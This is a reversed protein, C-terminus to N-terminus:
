ATRGEFLNEIYDAAQKGYQEEKVTYEMGDKDLRRQDFDKQKAKLEWGFALGPEGTVVFYDPRRESVYCDGQGYRQLFVQYQNTTITEAFVPDLFVYCLGSEDIVGEGVDGFLPSPTEYCYLLRKGYEDADSLRSKTGLVTLDQCYIDDCAIPYYFACIDNPVISIAFLTNGDGNRLAFGADIDFYTTSVWKDTGGINMIYASCFLQTGVEKDTKFRLRDGKLIVQALYPYVVGSYTTQKQTYSVLGNEDITGITANSSDLITIVGSEANVGGIELTGGKIRDALMTGSTIFDAVFAGDITWATEYPGLYGNDSFGIGNLNMRIVHVATEISDTDMILIEEPEGDANLNFVVHGGFGGTILRTAHEIAAQMVTKTPLKAVLSEVGSTIVEALTTQLKGIEMSDFAEDLVNYVVKIIKANEAVVGLEPYYVSVTDCLALQQLAAVDEYEPTQWLEVFDVTVNESPLWPKNNTLYDQAAQRLQAETPVEEFQQTFDMAVPLLNEYQFYIIEGNNDTIMNGNQDTWPALKLPVDDSAVFIEPLYIVTGDDMVYYPAIASYVSSDDIDHTINTMNKGYRITVGSDTGRNQYLYVDFKDWKYEGGGYVDLISGETGGLINRIANPVTLEFRAATVKDTTFNFLNTNVSNAIIKTFAEVINDATFPKVLIRNLRYSIHHAYFTVIGDIPATHRYIDFPQIDKNDDHIVAVCGGNEIMYQYFRGTIPYTFQCEFIGNREETVTCSSCESLRGYGNSTFQTEYATYLIPIM